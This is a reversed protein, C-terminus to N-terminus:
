TVPPAVHIQWYRMIDSPVDGQKLHEDVKGYSPHTPGVALLGERKGSRLFELFEMSVRVYQELGERVGITAGSSWRLLLPQLLPADSVSPHSTGLSTLFWAAGARAMVAATLNRVVDFHPRGFFLSRKSSWSHSNVVLLPVGIDDNLPGSNKGPDLVIGGKAPIRPNPADKLAQLTLTAGYSHGCLVLGDIDLRNAWGRLEAGERRTNADFVEKGRGANIARLVEVTEEVEAQRFALQEKKFEARDLSPDAASIPYKQFVNLQLDAPEVFGVARVIGNADVVVSGPGSGDRHEVAAVIVGRSALEGCYQSYSNRSSAAGHSFVVLPFTRDGYERLEVEVQEREAPDLKSFDRQQPAFLPADVDAPIRNSGTTAWLAFAVISKVLGSRMKMFRAYGEAQLSIPRSLWFHKPRRPSSPNKARTPYYLTFLVSELRFAYEGNAKYRTESVMRPRQLPIEIDVTGVGYPGTYKPFNSSLLPQSTFFCYSVYLCTFASIIYSLSPRPRLISTLRM